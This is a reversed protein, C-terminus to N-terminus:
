RNRRNGSTKKPMLHYDTLITDPSLGLHECIWLFGWPQAHSGYM